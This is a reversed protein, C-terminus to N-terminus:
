DFLSNTKGNFSFEEYPIWCLGDHKLLWLSQLMMKEEFKRNSYDPWAYDFKQKDLDRYALTMHPTFKLPAHKPDFGLKHRAYLNLQKHQEQLIPDNKVRVYITHSKPNEFYGFGDFNIEVPTFSSIIAHLQDIIKSEDDESRKFPNIETIHPLVRLGKVSGTKKSVEDKMQWFNRELDLDSLAAVFYLREM